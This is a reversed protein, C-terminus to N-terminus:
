FILFNFILFVFCFFLARVSLALFGDLMDLCKRWYEVLGLDKLFIIKPSLLVLVFIHVADVSCRM